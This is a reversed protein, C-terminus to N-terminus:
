RWLSGPSPKAIAREHECIGAPVSPVHYVESIGTLALAGWMPHEESTNTKLCIIERGLVAFGFDLLGLQLRPCVVLRSSRGLGLSTNASSQVLAEIFSRVMTMFAQGASDDSAPPEAPLESEKGAPDPGGFYAIGREIRGPTTERLFSCPMLLGSFGSQRYEALSHAVLIRTAEFLTRGEVANGEELIQSLALAEQEGCQMVIGFSAGHQPPAYQVAGFPLYSRLSRLLAVPPALLSIGGYPTKITTPM